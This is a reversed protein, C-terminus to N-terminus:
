KQTEAFYRCAATSSPFQPGNRGTLHVFKACRGRAIAGYFVCDSCRAAITPDSWSAMGRYTSARRMTEEPDSQILRLDLVPKPTM